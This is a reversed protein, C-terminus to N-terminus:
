CIPPTSGRRVPGTGLTETLGALEILDVLEPSAGRVAIRCGCRRATLALSALADLAVADSSLETADIGLVPADASLVPVDQPDPSVERLGNTGTFIM